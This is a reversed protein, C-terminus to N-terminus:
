SARPAAAPAPRSPRSCPASPVRPRPRVQHRSRLCFAASSTALHSSNLRTSKRDGRAREPAAVGGGRLAQPHALTVLDEDGLHLLDSSRRTPFSHLAAPLLLPLLLSSFLHVRLASTHRPSCFSCAFVSLAGPM